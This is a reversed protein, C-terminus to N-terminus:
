RAIASEGTQTEKKLKEKFDSKDMGQKLDVQPNQKLVAEGLGLM